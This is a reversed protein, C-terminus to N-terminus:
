TVCSSLAMAATFKVEVVLTVSTVGAASLSTVVPLQTVTRGVLSSEGPCGTVAADTRTLGATLPVQGCRLSAPGAEVLGAGEPEGVVAGAFDAGTWPVTAETVPLVMLTVLVSELPLVVCVATVTSSLVVYVLCAEAVVSAIVCPLHTVARPVLSPLPVSCAVLMM